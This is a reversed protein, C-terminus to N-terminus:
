QGLIKSAYRIVKRAATTVPAAAAAVVALALFESTPVSERSVM